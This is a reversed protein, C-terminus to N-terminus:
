AHFDNESEGGGGRTWQMIAQSPIVTLSPDVAAAIEKINPKEEGM